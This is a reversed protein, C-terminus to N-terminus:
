IAPGVRVVRARGAPATGPRPDRTPFLLLAVYATVVIAGILVEVIAAGTRGTVFGEIV